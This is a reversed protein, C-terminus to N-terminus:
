FIRCAARSPRSVTNLPGSPSPTHSGGQGSDSAGAPPEDFANAAENKRAEILEKVHALHAYLKKELRSINAAAISSIWEAQSHVNGLGMLVAVVRKAHDELDELTMSDLYTRILDVAELMPSPQLTDSM